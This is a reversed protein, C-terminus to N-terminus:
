RWNAMADAERGCNLWVIGYPFASRVEPDHILAAALVTKGVGGMGRLGAARARGIIGTDKDSHILITKLTRLDTGRVRYRDPLELLGAYITCFM